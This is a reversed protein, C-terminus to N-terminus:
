YDQPRIRGRFIFALGRMGGGSPCARNRWAYMVMKELLSCLSGTSFDAPYATDLAVIVRSSPPPVEEGIRIYLEGLHAYMNWNVRRVDDGPYYKRADLLENNRTATQRGKYIDGGGSARRPLSNPIRMAPFVTLSNKCEIFISSYTFGLGDGVFVVVKEGYFKGRESPTFSIRSDNEGPILLGEVRIVRSHWSLCSSFGVHFVPVILAPMSAKLHFVAPEGAFVAEGPFVLDFGEVRNELVHLVSKRIILNVAWTCCLLFLFGGGWLM